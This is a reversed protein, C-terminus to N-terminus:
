ETATYTADHAPEPATVLAPDPTELELGEAASEIEQVMTTGVTVARDREVTVAALEAASRDEVAAGRLVGLATRFRALM